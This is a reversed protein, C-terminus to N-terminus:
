QRPAHGMPTFGAAMTSGSTRQAAPARTTASTSGRRWSASCSVIGMPVANRSTCRGCNQTDLVVQEGAAPVRPPQVGVLPGQLATLEPPLPGSALLYQLAPHRFLYVLGAQRLVQRKLATQLLPM